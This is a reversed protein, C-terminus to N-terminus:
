KHGKAKDRQLQITQRLLKVLELKAPREDEGLQKMHHMIEAITM